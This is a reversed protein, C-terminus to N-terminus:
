EPRLLRAELCEGARVDLHLNLEEAFLRATAIARTAPSSVLLDPKIDAKGSDFLVRDVM